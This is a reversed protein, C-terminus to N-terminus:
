LKEIKLKYKIYQNYYTKINGGEQNQMYGYEGRPDNTRIENIYNKNVIPRPTVYERSSSRIIGEEPHEREYLTPKRERRELIQKTYVNYYEKPGDYRHDCDPGIIQDDMNIGVWGLKRAQDMSLLDCTKSLNQEKKRERILELEALRDSSTGGHSNYKNYYNLLISHNYM